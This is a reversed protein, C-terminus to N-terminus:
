IKSYKRLVILARLTNWRSDSGPNEMDFHVEGKIKHQLPWAGSKKRKTMLLKLADDMRSDYAIDAQAFYFLCRLINYHWRSPFSLMKFSTKIDKGTKDSKYLKHTLLFEHAMNRCDTLEDLRYSYDNSSYELIGELVNITTHMSSHTHGSPWRCNWGGDAFHKDIIYDAIEFIKDSEIHCYCCIRLLMGAICMDLMRGKSGFGKKYWLANLLKGASEKYEPTEPHIEIDRLEMLTYHTSRWKPTYWGKGWQGTIEDRFDLFARGWGESSMRTQLTELNEPESELLYKNAQYQISVDGDLLWKVIEKNLM